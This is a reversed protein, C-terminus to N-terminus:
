MSIFSGRFICLYLISKPDRDRGTETRATAALGHKLSLVCLVSHGLTPSKLPLLSTLSALLSAGPTASQSLYTDHERLSTTLPDSLYQPM